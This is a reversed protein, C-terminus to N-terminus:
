IPQWKVTEMQKLHEDLEQKTMKIEFNGFDNESIREKYFRIVYKDDINLEILVPIM